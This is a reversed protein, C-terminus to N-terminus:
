VLSLMERVAAEMGMMTARAIIAHGINCHEIYDISAIDMINMYNLGQGAHVHLEMRHATFASDRIRELEDRQASATANAYYGCNLEIYRAGIRRASKIQQTDPDIFLSVIINHDHFTEIIRAIEKENERLPLGSETTREDRKEPVLTVMSPLVDVGIQAMDKTPAIELNLRTTTVQKLLYIDRDQIHRRDERLHVSIANAGALEAIIAGHVPDPVKGGRAQRLTAIHDVTVGLTAM